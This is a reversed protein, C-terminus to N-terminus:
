DAFREWYTLSQWTLKSRSKMPMQRGPSKYGICIIVSPQLYRPLNLIVRVAQNSFSTVPGSGLGLAHAALMMNQMTTGIDIEHTHDSEPIAYSAKTAEDLCLLIAAQPYQFMGPSVLRLLRLTEPEQIAVFRVFRQNSGAPAWRGAELIKELKGREVPQDTMNRVVRRTKINKLVAEADM